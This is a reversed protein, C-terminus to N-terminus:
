FLPVQLATQRQLGQTRVNVVASGLRLGGVAYNADLAPDVLTFVNRLACLQLVNFALGNGGCSGCRSLILSSPFRSSVSTSASSLSTCFAAARGGCLCLR